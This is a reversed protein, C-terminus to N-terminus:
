KQERAKFKNDKEEVVPIQITEEDYQIDGFCKLFSAMNEQIDPTIGDIGEEILKKGLDNIDQSRQADIEGNENCFNMKVKKINSM